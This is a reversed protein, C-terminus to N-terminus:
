LMSVVTDRVAYPMEFPRDKISWDPGLSAPAIFATNRTANWDRITTLLDGKGTYRGMTPM